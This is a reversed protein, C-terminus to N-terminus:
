LTHGDEILLKKLDDASKIENMTLKIHEYNSSTKEARYSTVTYPKGKYYVTNEGVSGGVM